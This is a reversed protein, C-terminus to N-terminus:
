GFYETDLESVVFDDVSSIGAKEEGQANIKWIVFQRAELYISVNIRHLNLETQLNDMQEDLDEVLVEVVDTFQVDDEVEVFNVANKIFHDDSPFNHFCGLACDYTRM